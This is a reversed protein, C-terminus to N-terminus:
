PLKRKIVGERTEFEACVQEGDVTTEIKTCRIEEEEDDVTMMLISGLVIVFIAGAFMLGNRLVRRRRQEYKRSASRRRRVPLTSALTFRLAKVERLESSVDHGSRASEELASLAKGLLKYASRSEAKAASMMTKGHNLYCWGIAYACDSAQQEDLGDIVRLAEGLATRREDSVAKYDATAASFKQLVDLFAPGYVSPNDLWLTRLHHMSERFARCIEEVNAPDQLAGVNKQVRALHARAVADGNEAPTRYIESASELCEWCRSDELRHWAMGLAETSRALGYKHSIAHPELEVLKREGLQYEIALDRCEEFFGLHDLRSILTQAIDELDKLASVESSDSDSSSTTYRTKILEVAETSLLRADTERGLHQLVGACEVLLYAKQEDREAGEPVTALIENAYKAAELADELRGLEHYTRIRKWAVKCHRIKARIEDARDPWDMKEAHQEFDGRVADFRDVSRQLQHLGNWGLLSIIEAQADLWLDGGTFTERDLQLSAKELLEIAEAPKGRAGLSRASDIQNKSGSGM